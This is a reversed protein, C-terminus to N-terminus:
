VPNNRVFSRVSARFGSPTAHFPDAAAVRGVHANFALVARRFLGRMITEKNAQHASPVHLLQAPGARTRRQPVHLPFCGLLYASDVKGCVVKHVFCVDYQFRRKELSSVKFHHLLDHYSTFHAPRSQQSYSLWSLFKHQISDLRKLHTPAAGGWIVCGYELISRVNGFYAALIPGTQLGGATRCTQLSRILVGMARNAKGVIFDVHASFTLKSDLWVGLDRVKEVHRLVFLRIKYTALIPKRRLTMRFSHCKSPNLNLKWEESWAVLRNLDSQLLEADHPNAVKHYLKVDDAFLLINTQIKDPLDNVFLAFLLPSLQSGEPTGSRVPTWGSCKGNVAVRQKRDSLFSQLWKIANGSINYSKHLKHVLLKHNVSQFAASYDTYIVDTQHGASISDWATKLLTALNTDCSRCPVFGHQRPDLVPRVHSLLTDYVCRELIKGFLPLLSISRYNEPLKRSGKKFIPVINAEAWRGPFVGRELSKTFLVTLPHALEARCEWIVRASVNDPGCAKHINLEHLISRVRDESVAFKNLIPLDYVATEPYHTVDPDSFKSAFTRNLLEARAEDSVVERRGDMLVPIQSTKGKVCKLFSWFRKPNCKFDGIMGRLHQFYKRNSLRKFERRKEEFNGVADPTRNRKLRRFATEKEKLARRVEADFWPPCERRLTVTPIHDRIAGELVGYFMDVADNLDDNLLADWPILQLNRRMGDFDARKYNLATRSSVYPARCAVIKAVAHIESHDSEFVGSRVSTEVSVHRTFLLDLFNMGRTPAAVNQSLGAIDCKELLTSARQSLRDCYPRLVSSEPDAVWKIDPTNFDGTCIVPRIPFRSAISCLMDLSKGLMDCDGPPLVDRM